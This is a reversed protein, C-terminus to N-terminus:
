QNLHEDVMAAADPDTVEVAGLTDSVTSTATPVSIPLAELVALENDSVWVLRDTDDAEILRLIVSHAHLREVVASQHAQGTVEEKMVVFTIPDVDTGKAANELSEKAAVLPAFFEAVATDFDKEAGTYARRAKIDDWQTSDLQVQGTRGTTDTGRVLTTGNTLRATTFTM